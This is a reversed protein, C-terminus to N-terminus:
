GFSALARRIFPSTAPALLTIEHRDPELGQPLVRDLVPVSLFPGSVEILSLWENHNGSYPM